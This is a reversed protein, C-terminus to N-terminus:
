RPRKKQLSEIPPMSIPPVTAAPIPLAGEDSKDILFYYVRAEAYQLSIAVCGIETKAENLVYGVTLRTAGSNIGPIPEQRFYADKLDSSDTNRVVFDKSLNNFRLLVRPTAYFAFVNPIVTCEELGEDERGLFRERAFSQAFANVTVPPAWPTEALRARDREDIRKWAEWSSQWIATLDSWYPRTIARAEPEGIFEEALFPFLTM